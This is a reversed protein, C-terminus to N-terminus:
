ICNEWSIFNASCCSPATILPIAFIPEGTSFSVDFIVSMVEPFPISHCQLSSPLVTFIKSMFLTESVNLLHFHGSTLLSGYSVELVSLSYCCTEIREAFSEPWKIEM